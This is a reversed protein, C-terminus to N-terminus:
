GPLSLNPIFILNKRSYPIICFCLNHIKRCIPQDHQSFHIPTASTWVSTRLRGGDAKPEGNSKVHASLRTKAGAPRGQGGGREGHPYCSGPHAASSSCAGLAGQSRCWREDAELPGDSLINPVHFVNSHLMSKFTSSVNLRASAIHTFCMFCRSKCSAVHFWKSCCLVLVASVNPVYQQLM